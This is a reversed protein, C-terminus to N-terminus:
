RNTGTRRTEKENPGCVAERKEKVDTREERGTMRVRKKTRAREQGPGLKDPYKRPCVLSLRGLRGLNQGEEGPEGKTPLWAAKQRDQGKMGERRTEKACTRTCM